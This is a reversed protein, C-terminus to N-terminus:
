AKVGDVAYKNNWEELVSPLKEKIHHWPGQSRISGPVVAVQLLRETNSPFM